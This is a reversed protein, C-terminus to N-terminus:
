PDAGSVPAPSELILVEAGSWVQQTLVALDPLTGYQKVYDRWVTYLRDDLALSILAGATLHTRRHDRRTTATLNEPRNDERDGNLHHVHIEPTLTVGRTKEYVLRHEPAYDATGDPKKGIYIM